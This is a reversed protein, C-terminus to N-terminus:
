ESRNFILLTYIPTFLCISPPSTTQFNLLGHGNLLLSLFLRLGCVLSNEHLFLHFLVITKCLSFIAKEYTFHSIYKSFICLRFHVQNKKKKEGRGGKKQNGNLIRCLCISDQIISGSSTYRLMGKDQLPLKGCRGKCSRTGRDGLVAAYPTGTGLTATDRTAPTQLSSHWGQRAAPACPATEPSFGM